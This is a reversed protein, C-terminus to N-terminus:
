GALLDYMVAFADQGTSAAIGAVSDERDPEYNPHEGLPFIQWLLDAVKTRGADHHRPGRSGGTDACPHRRRAHAGGEGGATAIGTRRPPRAVSSCTSAPSCATRLGTPRGAIQPRVEFGEARAGEAVNYMRNGEYAAASTAVLTVPRGTQRVFERVWSWEEDTGLHDSVIEYVGHRLGKMALGLALMEDAEAFTGPVHVGQRDTHLWTRSTSFGLAGAQLGARIEAQMARLEDPTPVANRENCREGMVYARVAGHPVQTGIDM